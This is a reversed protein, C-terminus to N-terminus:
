VDFRDQNGPVFAVDAVVELIEGFDPVSGAVDPLPEMSHERGVCENTMFVLIGFEGCEQVSTLVERV